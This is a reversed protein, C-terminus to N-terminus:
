RERHSLLVTTSNIDNKNCVLLESNYMEDSRRKIFFHDGHHSVSTDIGSLRPTLIKLGKEPKSTDLYLSFQTTKSESDVFIYEKSESVFLNLSFMDDKEHYLCQDNSQDCGLKHLWVQPFLLDILCDIAVSFSSFCAHCLDVLFIISITRFICNQM